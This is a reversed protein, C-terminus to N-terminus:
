DRALYSLLSFFFSKRKFNTFDDEYQQCNVKQCYKKLDFGIKKLFIVLPDDKTIWWFNKKPKKRKEIFVWKGPLSISSISLKEKRILNFFNKKPKEKWGPFNKDETIEIKPLFHCDFGLRSFKEFEEESIEPMKLDIKQGFFNSLFKEEEKLFFPYNM